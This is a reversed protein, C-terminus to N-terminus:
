GVLPQRAHAGVAGLALHEAHPARHQHGPVPLQKVGLALSQQALNVLPARVQAAQLPLQPAPAVTLNAAPRLGPTAPACFFTSPQSFARWM